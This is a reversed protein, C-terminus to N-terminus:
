ALPVGGAKRLAGLRERLYGGDDDAVTSTRGRPGDNTIGDHAADCPCTALDPQDDNVGFAIGIVGIDRLTGLNAFGRDGLLWQAWRDRWHFPKDTITRMATNGAPVKELVV